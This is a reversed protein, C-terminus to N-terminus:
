ALLAVVSAVIGLSASVLDLAALITSTAQVDGALKANSATVAPLQQKQLDVLSEFAANEAHEWAARAMHRDRWYEETRDAPVGEEDDRLAEYVVKTAGRLRVLDDESAVGADGPTVAGAAAAGRKLQPAAAVAASRTATGANGAAAAPAAAKAATKTGTSAARANGTSTTAPTTAAVSTARKAGPKGTGRGTKKASAAM